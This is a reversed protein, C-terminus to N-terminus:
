AKKGRGKPKTAVEEVVVEVETEPTPKEAKPKPEPLTEDVGTLSPIHIFVEDDYVAVPEPEKATLSPITEVVPTDEPQEIPAKIVATLSPQEIVTEGDNPIIKDTPVELGLDAIVVDLKELIHECMMCTHLIEHTKSKFSFKKTFLAVVAERVPIATTTNIDITGNRNFPKIGTKKLALIFVERQDENLNLTIAPLRM